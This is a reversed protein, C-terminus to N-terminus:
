SAQRDKAAAVAVQGPMLSVRSARASARNASASSRGSLPFAGAQDGGASSGIRGQAGGDFLQELEGGRRSRREIRCQFGVRRPM